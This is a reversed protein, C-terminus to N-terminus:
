KGATTWYDVASESAPANGEIVIKKLEGAGTSLSIHSARVAAGPCRDLRIAPV